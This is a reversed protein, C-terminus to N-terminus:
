TAVSEGAAFCRVYASRNTLRPSRKALQELKEVLQRGELTRRDIQNPVLAVKMPEDRRKPVAEIIGLTRETAEVDLGSATCPVLIIDALAASAGMERETPATDIVM